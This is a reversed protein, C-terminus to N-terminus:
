IIQSVTKYQSLINTKKATRKHYSKKKCSSSTPAHKHYIHQLRRLDEAFLITGMYLHNETFKSCIYSCIQQISELVTSHAYLFLHKICLVCTNRKFTYVYQKVSFIHTRIGSIALHVRYLMVHYLPKSRTTGNRRTFSVAVIYSFYQQCHRYVGYGNGYGQDM